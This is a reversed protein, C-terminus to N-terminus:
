WHLPQVLLDTGQTTLQGLAVHPNGLKFGFPPPAAILVPGLRVGRLPRLLSGVATLFGMALMGAHKALGRHGVLVREM